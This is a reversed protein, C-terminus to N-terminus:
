VPKGAAAYARLREDEQAIVRKIADVRGPQLPVLLGMKDEFDQVGVSGRVLHYLGHEVLSFGGMEELWYIQAQAPGREIAIDLVKIDPAVVEAAIRRGKRGRGGCSPCDNPEPRRFHINELFEPAAAFAAEIRKAERPMKPAMESFPVRCEPCVGAILRQGIMTRVLTPDSFDSKSVGENMMRSVITLATNAHVTTLCLHGTRAGTFLGESEEKNRCEGFFLVRPASRLTASMAEVYARRIDEPGGTGAVKLPKAGPIPVEPPNEVTIINYRGGSHKHIMRLITRITTSKGSGTPGAMFIAGFPARYGHEILDGQFGLYGLDVVDVDENVDATSYFLRANLMEGDNALVNFQLRVGEVGKPLNWERGKVLSGEQHKDSRRDGGNLQCNAAVTSIAQRGWDSTYEGLVTIEDDKIQEVRTAERTKIIQLDSCRNRAIKDLIGLFELAVGDVETGTTMSSASARVRYDVSEAQMECARYLEAIVSIECLYEAQIVKGLRRVLARAEAVTPHTPETKSLLFVGNDFYLARTRMTDTFQCTGGKASSILGVWSHLREMSRKDGSNIERHEVRNLPQVVARPAPPPVGSGPTPAPSRQATSGADFGVPRAPGQPASGGSGQADGAVAGTKRLLNALRATSQEDRQFM